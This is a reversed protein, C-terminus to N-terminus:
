LYDRLRAAVAVLKPKPVRKMPSLERREEEVCGNFFGDLVRHYAKLTNPKCDQEQISHLFSACDDRTM